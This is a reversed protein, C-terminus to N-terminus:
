DKLDFLNNRVDRWNRGTPSLGQQTMKNFILETYRQFFDYTNQQLSKFDSVAQNGGPIRDIDKSYSDLEEKLIVQFEALSLNKNELSNFFKKFRAEDNMKYSVYQSELNLAPLQFGGIQISDAQRSKMQYVENALKSIPEGKSRALENLKDIEVNYVEQLRKDLDVEWKDNPRMDVKSNSIQNTFDWHNAKFFDDPAKINDLKAIAQSIKERVHGKQSRTTAFSFLGNKIGDREETLFTKLRALADEAKQKAEPNLADLSEAQSILHESIVKGDRFVARGQGHNFAINLLDDLHSLANKDHEMGLVDQYESKLKTVDYIIKEAELSNDLNEHSINVNRKSLYKEITKIALEKTEAWFNESSEFVEKPIFNLNSAKSDISVKGEPLLRTLEEELIKEIKPLHEQKMKDEVAIIETLQKQLNNREAELKALSIERQSETQKDSKNGTFSLKAEPMLEQAEAKASALNRIKDALQGRGKEALEAKEQSDYEVAKKEKAPSESHYDKIESENSFEPHNRMDAASNIGLDEIVKKLDDDKIYEGYTDDIFKKKTKLLELSSDAQSYAQNLGSLAAEIKLLQDAISKKKVAMAKFVDKGQDLDVGMKKIAAKAKLDELKNILSMFNIKIM